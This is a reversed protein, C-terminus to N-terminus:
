QDSEALKSPKSRGPVLSGDRAQDIAGRLAREDTIGLMKRGNVFLTPTADVNNAHALNLDRLVLGLSLEDKLCSEFRPVDVATSEVAFQTLKQRINGPTIESQHSFLRDHMAWFAANGQLQACAAGEAATRAWSHITLPLHHFVLRVDDKCTPLIRGLTDNLKRCYPCQFDSFEIITVPASQPGKSSATNPTLGAMLEDNLLREEELPDKTTDFLQDTLFRQDASLFLKLKWSGGGETYQFTLEQFCGAAPKIGSITLSSATVKFKEGVYRILADRKKVDPGASCNSQPLQAGRGSLAATIMPFLLLLATM